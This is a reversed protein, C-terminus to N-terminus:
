TGFTSFDNLVPVPTYSSNNTFNDNENDNDYDYGGSAGYYASNYSSSSYNPVKKCRFDPQPCRACPPCPPCKEKKTSCVTTPPCAPCVPPVVESKLIYLNEQGSPIQSKTVGSPFVSNYPNNNSSYSPNNNSSYSPNNNSSNENSFLNFTNFPNLSGNNNNNPTLGPTSGITFPTPSASGSFFPNTFIETNGNGETLILTFGGNNLKNINFTAGSTGTFVM